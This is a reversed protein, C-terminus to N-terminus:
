QHIFLKLRNLVCDILQRSSAVNFIVNFAAMNTFLCYVGSTKQSQRNNWQGWSVQKEQVSASNWTAETRTQKNHLKNRPKRVRELSQTTNSRACNCVYCWLCLLWKHPTYMSSSYSPTEGQQSVSFAGTLEKVLYHTSETRTHGHSKCRNMWATREQAPGRLCEQRLGRVQNPVFDLWNVHLM